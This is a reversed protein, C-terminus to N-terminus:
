LLWLQANGKEFSKGADRIAHLTGLLHLKHSFINSTM